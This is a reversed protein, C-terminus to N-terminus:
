DAFIIYLFFLVAAWWLFNSRKQKRAERTKEGLTPDPFSTPDPKHAEITETKNPPEVNEPHEPAIFDTIDVPKRTM